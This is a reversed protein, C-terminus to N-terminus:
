AKILWEEPIDGGFVTTAPGTLQVSEGNKWQLQLDGGLLHVTLKEETRGTLVSAVATASAGTGCSWTEGSGREWTRQIVENRSLVQIFEANVRRPFAIHNEVLPGYKELPFSAVDDVFIVCHPNGMGIATASFERDGVQLPIEIPPEGRLTTPIEEPRLLPLGMEVTASETTGDAGPYITVEKIGAGTMLRLKKKPCHRDYILKAVCRLGNGCMESTSGDANFMVMEGDVDPHPKVIILGDAGIGFRRHSVEIALHSLDYEFISPELFADIYVYDNGTGHMKTFRM